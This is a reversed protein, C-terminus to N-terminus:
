TSDYLSENNKKITPASHVWVYWNGDSISIM